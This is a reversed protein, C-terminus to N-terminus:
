IVGLDATLLFVHHWLIQWKGKKGLRETSLSCDSELCLGSLFEDEVSSLPLSPTNNVTCDNLPNAIDKASAVESDSCTTSGSELEVGSDSG